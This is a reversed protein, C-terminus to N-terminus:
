GVAGLYAALGHSAHTDLNFRGRDYIRITVSIDRHRAMLQVDRIPIGADIANAIAGHRLTHPSVVMDSIAAKKAARKVVRDASRRTMRSGDRRVFLPGKRDDLNEIVADLARMIVPPQPVTAPDGNKGVFTIVRHGKSYHMVDPVDLECVESVRLGLYAMLACMAYESASTDYAARLFRQTEERNLHVKKSLDLKPKAMRVNRCPNKIIYDDDLAFEYFQRLCIVRRNVSRPQNGRVDTMHRVYAEITRRRTQFPHIGGGETMCWDRFMHIDREYERRTNNSYRSLFADIFLDFERETPLEPTFQTAHPATM